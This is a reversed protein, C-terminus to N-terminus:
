YEFDRPVIFVKTDGKWLSVVGMYATRPVDAKVDIMVGLQGAILEFHRFDKYTVRADQFVIVCLFLVHRTPLHTM